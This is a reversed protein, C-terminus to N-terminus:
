KIVFNDWVRGFHGRPIHWGPQALGTTTLLGQREELSRPQRTIRQGLIKGKM